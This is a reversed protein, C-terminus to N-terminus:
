QVRVRGLRSVVITRFAKGRSLAFSANSVGTTIGIPSFHILKSGGALGVGRSSPGAERWLTEHSAPNRISLSDAAVSLVVEQSELIAAIRARRHASVIRWVQEDVMLRDRVQGFQPLAIGLILGSIVIALLLELLTLGRRM